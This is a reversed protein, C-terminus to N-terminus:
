INRLQYKQKCVRLYAGILGLLAWYFNPIYDISSVTFIIVLVAVLTSFLVRGLRILDTEDPPLIKILKYCKLLAVLFITLFLVLGVGGFSLAINIYSNVVDIIGQGQRMEEMAPLERYNPLGFWPHRQFVLWSVDLLQKRYDVTDSRQTGIFPLLDIFKDGYPTLILIQLGALGAVALKALQKMAAKGTWLYCTVLVAFGIWAGRAMTALLCVFISAGAFNALKQKSILPKLYLLLGFAIVMVYGLVIPSSFIGTARLSGSRIDYRFPSHGLLRISLNTYLHWHKLTEFIGIVAIPAIGLFLAFIARNIMETSTLYRTIMFYPLFIDILVLFLERCANSLTDGRYNLVAILGIYLFLYKDTSLSLFRPSHSKTLFPVLFLTITLARNYTFEFLNNIGAFGPILIALEPLACFLLFYYIVRSQVKAPIVLSICVIVVLYFLWINFSLLGVLVVAYWINRWTKFEKASIIVDPSALAAVMFAGYSLCIIYILSSLQESM